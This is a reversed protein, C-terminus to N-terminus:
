AVGPYFPLMQTATEAFEPVQGKGQRVMAALAYAASFAREMNGQIAQARETALTTALARVERVRAGELTWILGASLAAAIVFVVVAVTWARVSSIARTKM